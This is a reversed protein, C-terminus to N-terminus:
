AISFSGLGFLIVMQFPKRNLKNTKEQTFYNSVFLLCLFYGVECCVFVGRVSCLMAPSDRRFGFFRGGNM